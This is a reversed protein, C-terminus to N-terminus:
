ESNDPIPPFKKRKRPKKPKPALSGALAAEPGIARLRQEAADGVAAQLMAMTLDHKPALIAKLTLKKRDIERLLPGLFEIGKVCGGKSNVFNANVAAVMELNNMRVEITAGNEVYDVPGRIACIRAEWSRRNSGRSPLVKNELDGAPGNASRVIWGSASTGTRGEGAYRAAGHAWAIYTKPEKDISKM